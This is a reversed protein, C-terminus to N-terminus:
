ISGAQISYCWAACRIKEAKLTSGALGCCFAVSFLVGNCSQSRHRSSIRLDLPPKLAVATVDMSRQGFGWIPGERWGSMSAKMVEMHVWTQCGM